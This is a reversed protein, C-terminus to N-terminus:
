RGDDVGARSTEPPVYEALTRRFHRIRSEQYLGLTVGPKRSARLGRQVRPMIAQDEDLVPGFFSLEPVDSWKEPAELWRRPAPAPRPTGPTVPLLLMVEFLCSGPDNGDPRARNFLPSGLGGFLM